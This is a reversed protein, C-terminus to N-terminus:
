FARNADVDLGAAKLERVLKFRWDERDAEIYMVGSYDSPVEVGKGLFGCVRGRGLKGMFYGFELIVNQRARPRLLDNDESIARGLDDATLLAIAFQVNSHAEFKEIITLGKNAQEDLIIPNLGLKRIFVAVAQKLELNHGHIIFIDNQNEGTQQTIPSREQTTIQIPLRDTEEDLDLLPEQPAQKPLVANAGRSYINTEEHFDILEGKKSFLWIQLQTPIFKLECTQDSATPTLKMKDRSINDGYSIDLTLSSLPIRTELHFQLSHGTLTLRAIRADVNPIYLLLHGIRSDSYDNFQKLGTFEKIAEYVSTYSPLEHHLLPGSALSVNNMSVNFLTGPWDGYQNNSPEYQDSFGFGSAFQFRTGDAEFQLSGLGEIRSYLEALSLPEKVFCFTEYDLIEASATAEDERLVDIRAIAFDKRKEATTFIVSRQMAGKFSDEQKALLTEVKTRMEAATYNYNYLSIPAM